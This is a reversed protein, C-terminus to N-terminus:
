VCTKDQLSSLDGSKLKGNERITSVIAATVSESTHGESIVCGDLAVRRYGSETLIGIPINQMETQRRGTRDTFLQQYLKASAIEYAALTKKVHLLITHCYQVFRIGPLEKAVNTNPM